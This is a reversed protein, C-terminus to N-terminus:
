EISEPQQVLFREKLLDKMYVNIDWQSVIPMDTHPLHQLYPFPGFEPTIPFVEDGRRRAKEIIRDWWQLHREVAERWEPARPDTIQPGEAFGVRAHIHRARDLALNVAAPQDELLSEAVACWHSLDLALFLEENDELYRQTVHAAFSFRGRHTEHLIRVGTDRAVAVALEILSKNQAFSFFDKGTHSNIFLPQGGAQHRLCREYALRHAEIDTLHTEWHQAILALEYDKLVAVVREHERTDWPLDMEVGDFGAAKVQQAFDVIDVHRKGWYPCFFLIEM